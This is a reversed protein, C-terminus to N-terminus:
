HDESRERPQDVTADEDGKLAERIDILNRQIQGLLGIALAIKDIEFQLEVESMCLTQDVRM